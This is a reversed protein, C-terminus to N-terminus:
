GPMVYADVYDQDRPIYKPPPVRVPIKPHDNSADDRFSTFETWELLTLEIKFACMFEGDSCEVGIYVGCLERGGDKPYGAVDCNQLYRQRNEKHLWM